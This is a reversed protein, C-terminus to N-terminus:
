QNYRNRQKKVSKYSKEKKLRKEISKKNKIKGRKKISDDPLILDMDKTEEEDLEKDFVFCASNPIESIFCM